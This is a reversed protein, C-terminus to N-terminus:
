AGCSAEQHSGSHSLGFGAAPTQTDLNNPKTCEEPMTNFADCIGQLYSPASRGASSEVGNIILTPSGQVGYNQSLASDATYYDKAKSAVCSKLKASDIGATSECITVNAPETASNSNLICSLYKNLKAQGQEERICLQRNNELDEKEGHMTYHIFRVKFDIKDKLLDPRPQYESYKM